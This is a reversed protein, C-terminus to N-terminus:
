YLMIKIIMVNFIHRRKYHASLFIFWTRGVRSFIYVEITLIKSYQIINKFLYAHYSGSLAPIHVERRSSRKIVVLDLVQASLLICHVPM